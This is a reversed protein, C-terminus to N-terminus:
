CTFKSSIFDSNELDNMFILFLLPGLTSGQPVENNINLSTSCYNNFTVSQKPNTLYSLLLGHAVGRIEYHNLISLLITHSLINFSKELDLFILGTYDNNNMNEYTATVIDM